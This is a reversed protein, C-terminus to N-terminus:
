IRKHLGLWGIIAGSGAAVVLVAATHISWITVEHGSSPILWGAITGGAWACAGVKALPWFCNAALIRLVCGKADRVVVFHLGTQFANRLTLALVLWYVGFSAFILITAMNSIAGFLSLKLLLGNRGTVTFLVGPVGGLTRIFGNVALMAVIPAAPAWQAGFVFPVALHAFLVLVTVPIGAVLSLIATARALHKPREDPAALAFTPQFLLQAFSSGITIVAVEIRKGLAFKGLMNGAVFFGLLVQDLYNSIGAAIRVGSARTSQHALARVSDAYYRPWILSKTGVATLLFTVVSQVVYYSVLGTVPTSLRSVLLAAIAAFVGSLIGRAGLRRVQMRRVMVSQPQLLACDFLIKIFLIILVQPLVVQLFHSSLLVFAVFAVASVLSAMLLIAGGTRQLRVDGEGHAVLVDYVGSAGLVKFIEVAAIALSVTSLQAPTMMRAFLTFVLFPLAVSAGGNAASWFVHSASRGATARPPEPPPVEPLIEVKAQPALALPVAAAAEAGCAIIRAPVPMGDILSAEEGPAPVPRHIAPMAETECTGVAGGIVLTLPGDPANSPVARWNRIRRNSGAVAAQAMLYWARANMGLSSIAALPRRQKLSDVAGQLAVAAALSRRRMALAEAIVPDGGDAASDAAILGALDSNNIKSSVSHAHRRYFYTPRPLYLFHGGKELMRAVLDYDEGIRLRLDYTLSHEHLFHLDFLPKLYGLTVEKVYLANSRIYAARSIFQESRWFLGDAFLEAHRIGGDIGFEIMNSCVVEAGTRNAAEALYEVHCPHLEDDSDLVLAWRGRAAALSANRVAALGECPGSHVHVRPDVQAFQRAIDGTGDTSGDDVVIIEIERFTQARASQIAGGIYPASNRAVILISVLPSPQLSSTTM